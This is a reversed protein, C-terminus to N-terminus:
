SRRTEYPHASLAARQRRRRAPLAPLHGRGPRRSKKPPFGVAGITPSAGPLPTFRGAPDLSFSCHSYNAWGARGPTASPGGSGRGCRTPLSTSSWAIWPNWPQLEPVPRGGSAAGADGYSAPDYQFARVEQACRCSAAIKAAWEWPRKMRPCSWCRIAAESSRRRRTPARASPGAADVMVPPFARTSAAASSGSAPMRPRRCSPTRRTLLQRCSKRPSSWPGCEPVLDSIKTM